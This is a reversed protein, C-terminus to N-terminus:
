EAIYRWPAAPSARHWITFFPRGPQPKGDPGPANPFIHGITVGFDGSAAVITKVDPGWRVRSGNPPEGGGVADGIAQNGLVFVPADPGGLNLADPSGFMKFAPGTGIKQAEASFATEADALSQRYQQLVAADRTPTVLKAPLVNALPTLPPVAKAGGRKYALM